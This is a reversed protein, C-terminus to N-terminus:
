NDNAHYINNNPNTIMKSSEKQPAMNPSRNLQADNAANHVNIIPLNDTKTPSVAQPSNISINNSNINRIHYYNNTCQKAASLPIAM